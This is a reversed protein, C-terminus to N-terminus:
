KVAWAGIMPWQAVLMREDDRTSVMGRVVTAIEEAEVL